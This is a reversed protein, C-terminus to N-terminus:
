LPSTYLPNSTGLGVLGHVSNVKLWSILVEWNYSRCASWEYLNTRSTNALFGCIDSNIVFIFLSLAKSKPHWIHGLVFRTRHQWREVLVALPLMLTRPKTLKPQSEPPALQPHTARLIVQRHPRPMNSQSPSWPPEASRRSGRRHSFAHTPICVTERRGNRRPALVLGM